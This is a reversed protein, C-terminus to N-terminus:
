SSRSRPHVNSEGFSHHGVGALRSGQLETRDDGERGLVDVIRMCPTLFPQNRSSVPGAKDQVDEGGPIRGDFLQM